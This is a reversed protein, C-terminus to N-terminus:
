HKYEKTTTPKAEKVKELVDEIKTSIDIAERIFESYTKSYNNKNKWKEWNAYFELVIHIANSLEKQKENSLQSIKKSYEDPLIIKNEKADYSFTENPITIVPDKQLLEDLLEELFENQRRSIADKIFSSYSEHLKNLIDSLGNFYASIVPQVAEVQEKTVKYKKLNISLPM